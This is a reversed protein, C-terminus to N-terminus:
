DESREFPKTLEIVRPTGSMTQRVPNPSDQATPFIKKRAVIGTLKVRKNLVDRPWEDLGAVYVSGDDTTLVAGAKANEAIGRLTIPHDTAAESGTSKESM